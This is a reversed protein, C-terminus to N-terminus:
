ELYHGHSVACRELLEMSAVSVEGHRERRFMSRHFEFKKAAIAPFIAVAPLNRSIDSCKAFTRQKMFRLDISGGWGLKLRCAEPAPRGIALPSQRIADSVIHVVKERGSSQRSAVGSVQVADDIVDVSPNSFKVSGVKGVL